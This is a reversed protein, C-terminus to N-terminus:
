TFLLHSKHRLDGKLSGGTRREFAELRRRLKAAETESMILIPFVCGEERYREIQAPTLCKPM